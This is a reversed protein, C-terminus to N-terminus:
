YKLSLLLIYMLRFQCGVQVLLLHYLVSNMGMGEIFTSYQNAMPILAIIVHPGCDVLFGLSPLQDGKPM